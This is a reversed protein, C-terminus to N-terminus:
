GKEERGRGDLIVKGHLEVKMTRNKPFLIEYEGDLKEYKIEGGKVEIEKDGKLHFLTEGYKVRGPPAICTGLPIFCLKQFLDWALEPEVQDLVGLHPLIFRNDLGIETIGTPKLGDLLLLLADERAYSLAGGSGIIVNIPEMETKGIKSMLYPITKQPRISSSFKDGLLQKSRKISTFEKHYYFALRLAERAIASEIMVDIDDEPIRTPNLMKNAIRDRIDDELIDVPLWRKINKLGASCFVNGISYSMGLNASVTRNFLGNISSFVDTTAGGLDVCLINKNWNKAINQVMRSMASPTPLIPANVVEKLREYGPAREMVHEMFLQHIKERAPIPNEIKISPRVNETIYIDLTEKLINEIYERANRNGAYILPIKETFRGEPRAMSMIEAIRTVTSVAGGDEGGAFLIMDPRVDKVAEVKEYPTRGDDLAIVDQIVAGASLASREASDATISRVLGVVLMKLGGGASSTALFLDIGRGDSEPMIPEDGDFLKCGTQNELGKIANIVGIMVDEKPREVTTEAYQTFFRDGKLYHAKTFTSGVDIVIISKQIM